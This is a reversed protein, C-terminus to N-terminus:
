GPTKSIDEHNEHKEVLDSIKSAVIITDENEIIGSQMMEQSVASATDISTIFPFSVDQLDGARSRIRLTLTYQRKNKILFLEM